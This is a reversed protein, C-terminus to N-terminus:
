FGWLEAKDLPDLSKPAAGTCQRVCADYINAAVANCVQGGYMGYKPPSKELADWAQKACKDLCKNGDDAKCSWEKADNTNESDRIVTGDTRTIKDFLSPKMGKDSFSFGACERKGDANTWCHYDHHFPGVAYGGTTSIGARCNELLGLADTSM